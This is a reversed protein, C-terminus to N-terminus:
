ARSWAEGGGLVSLERLYGARKESVQKLLRSASPFRREIRLALKDLLECFLKEVSLAKELATRGTEMAKRMEERYADIDVGEVPELAIELTSELGGLELVAEKRARVVLNIDEKSGEAMRSFLEKLSAEETEQALVKYFAAVEETIDALTTMVYNFSHSSM